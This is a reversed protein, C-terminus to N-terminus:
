VASIMEQRVEDSIKQLENESFRRLDSPFNISELYKYNQNM